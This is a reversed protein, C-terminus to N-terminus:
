KLQPCIAPKLKVKKGWLFKKVILEEPLFTLYCHSKLSEGLLMLMCSVVKEKKSNNRMWVGFRLSVKFFMSIFLTQNAKQFM